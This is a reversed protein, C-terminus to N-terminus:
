AFLIYYHIIKKIYRAFINDHLKKKYLSIIQLLIDNGLKGEKDQNEEPALESSLLTLVNYM